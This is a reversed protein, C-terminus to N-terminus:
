PQVKPADPLKEPAFDLVEQHTRLASRAKDFFASLDEANVHNKDDMLAYLKKMEAEGNLGVAAMQKQAAAYVTGFKSQAETFAKRAGETRYYEKESERFEKSFMRKFFGFNSEPKVPNTTAQKSFYSELERFEQFPKQYEKQLFSIGTAIVALKEVETKSVAQGAKVRTELANIYDITKKNGDFISEFEKFANAMKTQQDRRLEDLKKEYDGTLTQVVHEHQSQQDAFAQEHRHSLEAIKNAHEAKLTAIEAAHQAALQNVWVAGGILGLVALILLIALTKISNM